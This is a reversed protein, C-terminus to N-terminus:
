IFCKKYNVLNNKEKNDNILKDDPLIDINEKNSFTQCIENNFENEKNNEQTKQIINKNNIKDKTLNVKTNENFKFKKM